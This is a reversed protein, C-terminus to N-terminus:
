TKMTMSFVLWSLILLILQTRTQEDREAQFLADIFTEIKNLQAENAKQLKINIAERIQENNM